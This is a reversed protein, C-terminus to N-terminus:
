EQAELIDALEQGLRATNSIASIVSKNTALEFLTKGEAMVREFPARRLLETQLREIGAEDLEALLERHSTTVIAADTQTILIRAPVDRRAARGADRIMKLASGAADGDLASPRMPVVCLDSASAAYSAMLGAVGELDVFVLDHADAAAELTDLISSDSPDSIVAFPPDGLNDENRKNLWVRAISQRPDADVIAVSLDPNNAFVSALTLASTSKGCGGKPSLISVIM